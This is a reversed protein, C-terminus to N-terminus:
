KRGPSKRKAAPKRRRSGSLNKSHKMKKMKKMPKMPMGPMGGGSGAAFEDPFTDIVSKILDLASAFSATPMGHYHVTGANSVGLVGMFPKGDIKIQYTTKITIHHGNYDAERMSGMGAGGMHMGQLLKKFYGANKRAQAASADATIEGPVTV